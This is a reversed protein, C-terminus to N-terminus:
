PNIMRMNPKPTPSAPILGASASHLTRQATMVGIGRKQPSPQLQRRM